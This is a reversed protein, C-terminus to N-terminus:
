FLEYENPKMAQFFSPSRRYPKELYFLTWDLENEKKENDKLGLLVKYKGFWKLKLSRDNKRQAGANMDEQLM